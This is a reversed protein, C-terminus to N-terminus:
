EYISHDSASEKPPTTPLDMCITTGNGQESKISLGYPPGYILRLRLHLNNLGIGQRGEPVPCSNNTVTSELQRLLISLEKPAIGIGDDTCTFRLLQGDLEGRLTLSGHGSRPELGHFVANEVLPQLLFRPIQFGLINDPVDIHFAFRNKFRIDIIQLYKQVCAIEKQVEVMEEGKISYRMIASLASVAVPIDKTQELYALGNIADLTNYLFHPNVQSQLALLRAQINAIETEYLQAQNKLNTRTLKSIQDLMLNIYNALEGFENKEDLEMHNHLSYYPGKKIFGAIKELPLTIGIIIRRGLLAYTGLLLLFFLLSLLHFPILETMIERYPVASVVKWHTTGLPQWSILYKKGDINASFMQKQQSRLAQIIAADFTQKEERNRVIVQMQSNLVMMLSNSTSTASLCADYIPECTGIVLCSGIKSDAPMSASNSYVSHVNAYYPTGSGKSYLPGVFGEPQSNSSFLNYQANLENVLSYNLGNFSFVRGETDLLVINTISPNSRAFDSTQNNLIQKYRWKANADTERLLSNTASANCVSSTLLDVSTTIDETKQAVQAMMSYMHREEKTLLSRFAVVYFALFACFVLVVTVIFLVCIQRRLSPKRSFSM